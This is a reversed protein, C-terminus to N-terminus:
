QENERVTSDTSIFPLSHHFDNGNSFTIGTNHGHAEESGSFAM